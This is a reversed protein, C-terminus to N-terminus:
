PSFAGLESLKLFKNLRRQAFPTKINIINEIGNKKFIYERELKRARNSRIGLFNNSVVTFNHYERDRHPLVWWLLRGIGTSIECDRDHGVHVNAMQAIKLDQRSARLFFDNHENAVTRSEWRVKNVANTKALWVNDVRDCRVVGPCVLGKHRGFRQYVVSGQQEFVSINAKDEGAAGAIFDYNSEELFKHLKELCTHGNFVSDDDCLFTYRTRVHDLLHNRGAGISHGAEFPLTLWTINAQPSEHDNFLPTRSDDCVLVQITPYYQRISKLLRVICCPREFTKIIITVDTEWTGARSDVCDVNFTNAWGKFDARAQDVAAEKKSRAPTLLIAATVSLLLIVIAALMAIM